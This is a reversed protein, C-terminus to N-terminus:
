CALLPRGGNPLVLKGHGCDLIGRLDADSRHRVFALGFRAHESRFCWDAGIINSQWYYHAALQEVSRSIFQM